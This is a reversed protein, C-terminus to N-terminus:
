KTMRGRTKGTTKKNGIVGRPACLRRALGTAVGVIELSESPRIPAYDPHHAVLVPTKGFRQFEKLTTEGDVVAVVFDGPRPDVNRRLLVVDGDFVGAGRMSDGKIPVAMMEEPRDILWRDASWVTHDSSSEIREPSGATVKTESAPLDFFRAGPAVRGGATRRLHGIAVLRTVLKVAATKSKFGLASRLGEFSPIAGERSFVERLRRLHREDHNSRMLANHHVNTCKDFPDTV